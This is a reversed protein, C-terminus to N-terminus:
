HHERRKHMTDDEMCEEVKMMEQCTAPIKNRQLIVNRAWPQLGHLFAVKYVYKEKMPILSLLLVFTQVYRGM